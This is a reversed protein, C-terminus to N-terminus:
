PIEKRPQDHTDILPRLAPRDAYLQADRILRRAHYRIALHTGTWRGLAVSLGTVLLAVGAALIIVAIWGVALVSDLAFDVATM